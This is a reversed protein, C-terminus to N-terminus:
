MMSKVSKLKEEGAAQKRSRSDHTRCAGLNTRMNFIGLGDTMFSYAKCGNAHDACSCVAYKLNFQGLRLLFLSFFAVLINRSFVSHTSAACISQEGKSGWSHQSNVKVEGAVNVTLGKEGGWSRQGNVTEEGGGAANITLGNGGGGM